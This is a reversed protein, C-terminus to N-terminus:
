IPGFDRCPSCTLAAVKLASHSIQSIWAKVHSMTAM